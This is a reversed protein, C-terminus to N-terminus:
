AVSVRIEAEVHITVYGHSNIGITTFYNKFLKDCSSYNTSPQPRLPLATRKGSMKNEKARTM